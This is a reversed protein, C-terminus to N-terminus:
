GPPQYYRRMVRLPARIFGIRAWNRFRDGYRLILIVLHIMYGDATRMQMTLRFEERQLFRNTLAIGRADVADPLRSPLLVALEELRSQALRFRTRRISIVDDRI